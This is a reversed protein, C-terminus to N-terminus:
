HNHSDRGGQDHSSQHVAGTYKEPAAAFTKHCVESCFYYTQGAHLSTAAAKTPDVEMGCVPDRTM